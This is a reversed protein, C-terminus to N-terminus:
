AQAFYGELSHNPGPFIRNWDKTHLAEINALIVADSVRIKTVLSDRWCMPCEMIDLDFISRCCTNWWSQSDKM